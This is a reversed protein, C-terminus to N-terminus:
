LLQMQLELWAIFIFHLFTKLSHFAGSSTEHTLRGHHTGPISAQVLRRFAGVVSMGRVKCSHIKTM